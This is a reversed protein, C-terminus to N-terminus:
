EGKPPKAVDITLDVNGKVDRIIMSKRTGFAGKLSDARDVPINPAAFRGKPFHRVTVLYKGDPLGTPVTFTGDNFVDAVYITPEDKKKGSDVGPPRLPQNIEGTEEDVEPRTDGDMRIFSVEIQVLADDKRLPEGNKLLKGKVENKDKTPAGSKSCGAFSVVFLIAWMVSFRGGSRLWPYM